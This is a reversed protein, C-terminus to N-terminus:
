GEQSGSLALIVNGIKTAEEPTLDAPIGAVKVIVGRRIPIPFVIEEIKSTFSETILADATGTKTEPAAQAPRERAQSRTSRDRTAVQPKFAVPNRKWSAFDELASSLRSKYVRLSEPKFDAGKLNSFRQILSDVDLNSLDAAEEDSLISLLTNVAAKRSAVTATKVLGKNGLYDLFDLLAQRSYGGNMDLEKLSVM